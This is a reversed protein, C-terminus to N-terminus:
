LQKDIFNKWNKPFFVNVHFFSIILNLRCPGGRNTSINDPQPSIRTVKEIIFPHQSSISNVM